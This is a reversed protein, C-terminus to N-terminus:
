CALLNTTLALQINYVFADNNMIIKQECSREEDSIQYLYNRILLHNDTFTYYHIGVVTVAIIM